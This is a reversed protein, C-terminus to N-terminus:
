IPDLHGRGHLWPSLHSNPARVITLDDGTTERIESEITIDTREEGSRFLYGDDDDDNEKKEDDGVRIDAYVVFSLSLSSYTTWCAMSASTWAKPALERAAPCLVRTGSTITDTM